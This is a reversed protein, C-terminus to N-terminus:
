CDRRILFRYPGEDESAESETTLLTNGTNRCWAPIDYKSGPDTAILEFVENLAIQSVANKADIVPGPCYRGSADVVLTPKIHEGQTPKTTPM